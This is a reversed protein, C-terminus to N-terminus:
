KEDKYFDISRKLISRITRALMKKRQGNSITGKNIWVVNMNIASDTDHFKMDSVVCKAPNKGRSVLIIDQSNEDELSARMKEM